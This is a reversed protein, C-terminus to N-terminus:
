FQCTHDSSLSADASDPPTQFYCNGSQPANDLLVNTLNLHTDPIGENFINGSPNNDRGASNGSLTVNTLNAKAAINDMGGGYAIATNGSLTVNTLNATAFANSIGGGYYASNRALTTNTLTLNGYNYIGGGLAISPAKNTTLLVDNVT